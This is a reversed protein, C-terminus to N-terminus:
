EAVIHGPTVTYRGLTEHVLNSRCDVPLGHEFVIRKSIQKRRVEVILTRRHASLALLLAAFPVTGRTGGPGPPAGPGGGGGTRAPRGRPAALAGRAARTDSDRPSGRPTAFPPHRRSAVQQM